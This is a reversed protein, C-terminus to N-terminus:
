WPYKHAQLHTSSHRQPRASTPVLCALSFACAIIQLLHAAPVETAGTSSMSGARNSRQSLRLVNM